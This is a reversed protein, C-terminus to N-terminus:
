LSTIHCVYRCILTIYTTLVSLTSLLQIFSHTRIHTPTSIYRQHAHIMHIMQRRIHMIHIYTHMYLLNVHTHIYSIVLFTHICSRLAYFAYLAYIQIYSRYTHDTHMCARYTHTIQIYSQIYMHICTYTHICAHTHLVCTHTYTNTHTHDLHLIYPKYKHLGTQMYANDTHMIQLIFKM